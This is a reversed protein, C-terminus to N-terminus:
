TAIIGMNSITKEAYEDLALYIIAELNLKQYETILDLERVLDKPLQISIVQLDTAVNLGDMQDYISKTKIPDNM